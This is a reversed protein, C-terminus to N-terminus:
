LDRLGDFNREASAILGMPVGQIMADDFHKVNKIDVANSGYWTRVLDSVKASGALPLVTAGAVLGMILPHMRSSVVLSADAYAEFVDEVSQPIM